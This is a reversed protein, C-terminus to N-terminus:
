WWARGADRCGIFRRGDTRWETTVTRKGSRLDSWTAGRSLDRYDAEWQMYSCLAFGKSFKLRNGMWRELRVKSQIGLQKAKEVGPDPIKEWDKLGKLIQSVMLGKFRSEQRCWWTLEQRSNLDQNWHWKKLSPKRSKKLGFGMVLLEWPELFRQEVNREEWKVASVM